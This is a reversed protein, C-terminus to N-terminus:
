GLALSTNYIHGQTAKLFLACAKVCVHQMTISLSNLMVEQEQSDMCTPPPFFSWSTSMVALIFTTFAFLLLLMLALCILMIVSLIILRRIARSMHNLHLNILANFLTVLIDKFEEVFAAVDLNQKM